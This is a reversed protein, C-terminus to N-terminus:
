QTLDFNMLGKMLFMDDLEVTDKLIILIDINNQFQASAFYM